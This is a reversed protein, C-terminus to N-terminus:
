NRAGYQNRMGSAAFGIDCVFPLYMIIALNYCLCCGVFCCVYIQNTFADTHVDLLLFYVSECILCFPVKSATRMLRDNPDDLLVTAYQTEWLITYGEDTCTLANGSTGLFVSSTLKGSFHGFDTKSVKGVYGEM